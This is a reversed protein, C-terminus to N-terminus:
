YLGVVRLVALLLWDAGYLLAAMLLLTVIVVLSSALVEKRTPWVVRGMEIETEILFDALRPYNLGLSIVAVAILFLAVPIVKVAISPLSTSGLVQQLSRCGYGAFFALFVGTAIRAYRGQGPKYVIGM